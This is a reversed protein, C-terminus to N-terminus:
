RPKVARAAARKLHEKEGALHGYVRAVMTADTHGLLEAVTALDNGATIANTAYTHRFSYAVTGAPLGLKERLRRMRCRFANPTWRRGRSDRFLPGETRGAAAMRCITQLCPSLYIVLPRGTKKRTKHNKITWTSFDASVDEVNAAAITGPRAGSHRLAVLVPRFAGDRLQKRREMKPSRKRTSPDGRGDDRAMMMAKHQDDSILVERRVIGPKAVRAFPNRIILGEDMAWNFARKVTGIAARQSSAGWTKHDALWRTVAHPKLTRVRDIGYLKSFDALYYLQRKYEAPTLRSEAFELYTELVAAVIAQSSELNAASVQEAWMEHAATEDTSLFVNRRGGPSKVYWGKRAKWYFPKRM